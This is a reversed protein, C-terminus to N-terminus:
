GQVTAGPGHQKKLKSLSIIGGSPIISCRGEVGDVCVFDQLVSMMALLALHLARPCPLAAQVASSHRQESRMRRRGESAGSM